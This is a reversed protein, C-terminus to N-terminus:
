LNGSQQTNGCLHQRIAIVPISFLAFQSHDYTEMFIREAQQMPSLKNLGKMSCEREIQDELASDTILTHYVSEIGSRQAAFLSLASMGKRGGTLSLAIQKTPYKTRLDDIVRLLEALYIECAQMTDIDKLGNIPRKVFSIKRRGCLDALLDAGNRVPAHGEPYLVVIPAVELYEREQLLVYTQIAIMPSEGLPVLLVAEDTTLASLRKYPSMDAREQLEEASPVYSGDPQEISLGCVTM